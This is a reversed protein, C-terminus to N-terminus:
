FKSRTALEDVSPFICYSKRQVVFNRCPRNITGVEICEDDEGKMYILYDILAQELKQRQKTNSMDDLQVDEVSEYHMEETQEEFLLTKVVLQM